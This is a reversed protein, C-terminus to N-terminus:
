KTAEQKNVISFFVDDLTPQKQSFGLIPIKRQQLGKLVDTIKAVEDNTTVTLSLLEENAQGGVSAEAAKLAERDPFSLEITGQPLHQKVEAVSGQLAIKGQNLIAVTDALQDAEELYQTTLFITVGKKKLQRIRQWLVARAQPDLGTTPEDLFLIAPESILSMALDLKRRMGGSYTSVSRNAAAVLEFEQLLNEVRERYNKLHRLKGILMLNERGTLVDDVATFQGTLSIIERIQQSATLTDLGRVKISGNDQTLLTTMMKVVTTKGAGNTGILAFITGQPVVFDIEDIIAQGSFSKSLQNVSIAENM